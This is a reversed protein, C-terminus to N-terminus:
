GRVPDILKVSLRHFLEIGRRAGANAVPLDNENKLTEIQDAVAINEFIDLQRQGIPSHLSRLPLLAAALREFLHFRFRRMYSNAKSGMHPRM